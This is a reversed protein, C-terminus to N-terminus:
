KAAKYSLATEGLISSFLFSIELFAVEEKMLSFGSGM